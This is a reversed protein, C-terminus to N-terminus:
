IYFIVYEYNYSLMAVLDKDRFFGKIDDKMERLKSSVVRYEVDNTGTEFWYEGSVIDAISKLTSSSVPVLIAGIM